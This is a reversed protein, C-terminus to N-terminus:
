QNPVVSCLPEIMVGPRAMRSVPVVGEIMAAKVSNLADEYRLKKDKLETETAAGVQYHLPPDIAASAVSEIPM